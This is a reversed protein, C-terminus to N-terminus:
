GKVLRPGRPGTEPITIEIEADTEGVPATVKVDQHPSVDFEVIVGAHTTLKFKWPVETVITTTKGPEISVKSTKAMM